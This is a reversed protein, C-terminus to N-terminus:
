KNIAVQVCQAMRPITVEDDELVSGNLALNFKTNLKSFVHILDLSTGGIDFFDDTVEIKDHQLVESWIAAVATTVESSPTKPVAGTSVPAESYTSQSVMDPTRARTHKEPISKESPHM